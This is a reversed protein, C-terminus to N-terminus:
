LENDLSQILNVVIRCGKEKPEPRMPEKPEPRMPACQRQRGTILLRRRIHFQNLGTVISARSLAPAARAFSPSGRCVVPQRDHFHRDPFLPVPLYWSSALSRKLWSLRQNGAAEPNSGITLGFEFESPAFRVSRM